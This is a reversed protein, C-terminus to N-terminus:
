GPKPGRGPTWLCFFQERFPETAVPSLSIMRVCRFRASLLTGVASGKIYTYFMCFSEGGGRWIGALPVFSEQDWRALVSRAPPFILKNFLFM